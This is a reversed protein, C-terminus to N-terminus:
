ELLVERFRTKDLEGSGAILGIADVLGHSRKWHKRAARFRWKVSESPTTLMQALLMEIIKFHLPLLHPFEVFLHTSFQQSLLKLSELTKALTKEWFSEKGNTSLLPKYITLTYFPTILYYLRASCFTKCTDRPFAKGAIYERFGVTVM